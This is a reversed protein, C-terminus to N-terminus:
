DLILGPQSIKTKIEQMIKEEKEEILPLNSSSKSLEMKVFQVKEALGTSIIAKTMEQDADKVLKQIAQILQGRISELEVPRGEQFRGISRFKLYRWPRLSQMSSKNLLGHLILM